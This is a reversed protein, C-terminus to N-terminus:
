NTAGLGGVDLMQCLIYMDPVKFSYTYIGMIDYFQTKSVEWLELLKSCM